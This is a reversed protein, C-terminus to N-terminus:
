KNMIAILYGDKTEVAIKEYNGVGNISYLQYSDGCGHYCVSGIKEEVDKTTQDTVTYNKNNFTLVLNNNWKPKSSLKPNYETKNFKLFLVILVALIIISVLLVKMYKNKFNIFMIIHVSRKCIIGYSIIRQM